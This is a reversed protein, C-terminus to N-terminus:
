YLVNSNEVLQHYIGVKNMLNEPTDFEKIEGDDVVMVLDSNKVSNIRHAITLITCEGFCEKITKQLKGELEQTMNATAEDLIIIKSKCVFARVLCILQKEGSSYQNGSNLVKQDLSQVLDKLKMKEIATWIEMDTYKGLPDINSRITGSFLVPDQPINSLKIRLCNLNVTNINVSDIFIDGETQYLKFLATTISTKGAGTRGVIGVKKGADITFNINKLAKLGNKYTLNVNCYQIKGKNPWNNLIQGNSHEQDTDTYEMVREMSTMQSELEAWQKIGWQLSGTLGMAQTIALGVNGTNDGSIFLFHVIVSTIFMTCTMDLIFGFTRIACIMMYSASTYMDLHNEFEQKVKNEMNYARITTIGDITANIHSMLPGRTAADLRKLSRGVPIYMSRVFYLKIILLTAPILFGINVMSIVVITGILACLVRFIEYLMFPIFEDIGCLDKAFRNIINGVKNRDFFDINAHLVSRILDNHIKESSAASLYFHSFSKVIALAASGFVLISYVMIIDNIENQKESLITNNTGNAELKTMNEQLVTWKGILKDGSSTVVQFAVFLCIVVFIIFVGGYYGFYRRYVAFEVKGEKNIEKYADEVKPKELFEDTETPEKSNNEGEFQNEEVDDIYYTIRKDLEEKQSKITLTKGKNLIIQNDALKIFHINNSVFIIIKDKLFGKFCQHFVYNSVNTDLAKLSDDFLYIDCDKYCARALSVRAKQGTSLNAGKDTVLTNDGNLLTQLDKNLCCVKLIDKYRAENYPQGFLINQKITSPFIWPDEPSYSITGQINLIGKSIPLEKIITKILTTKGSGCEGSIINLGSQIKLSVYSLIEKEEVKVAIKNLYVLPELYITGSTEKLEEASLVYNLRKLSANVDSLSIIGLPITNLLYSRLSSNYCTIVFFITPADVQNGLWVYTMLLLYLSIKSNLLPLIMGLARVYFLHKMKVVEEKRSESINTYFFLDWAYMKIIKIASLAEQTSQIREDTKKVTAMKLQAMKKGLFVQLPTLLLLCGLGSLVSIGVKSYILYCIITTQIVGIWLDNLFIFIRDFALMDKTMLTCIKGVSIEKLASPSLKLVKRFLLSSFATRVKIGFETVIQMYNHNYICGFITIFILSFGYKYAELKTYQEPTKFYQLLKFLFIPHLIVISSKCILQILGLLLYSKGYQSWILKYLSISTNKIKLFTWKEELSKGVNAAKFESVVEYVDDLNLDRKRATKFLPLTYLFFLKKFFNADKVPNRTKKVNCEPDM